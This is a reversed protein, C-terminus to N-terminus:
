LKDKFTELIKQFGLAQKEPNSKDNDDYAWNWYDVIKCIEEYHSLWEALQEHEEACTECEATEMIDLKEKLPEVRLEDAKERCHKIAEDLNM